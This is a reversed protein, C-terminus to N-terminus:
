FKELWGPKVTKSADYIGFYYMCVFSFNAVASASSVVNRWEPDKARLLPSWRERLQKEIAQSDEDVPVSAESINDSAKTKSAVSNRKKVKRVIQCILSVLSLHGVVVALSALPIFLIRWAADLPVSIMVVFLVLFARNQDDKEWNLKRWLDRAETNWNTYIALLTPVVKKNPRAFYELNGFTAIWFRFQASYAINYLLDAINFLMKRDAKTAKLNEITKSDTCLWSITNVSIRVVYAAFFMAAAFTQLWPATGTAAFTFLKIAELLVGVAFLVVFIISWSWRNGVGLTDEEESFDFDKFLMKASAKISMKKYCVGYVLWIITVLIDALCIFPSTRAPSLHQNAFHDAGSRQTAANIGLVVLCLVANLPSVHVPEKAPLTGETTNSESAARLTPEAGSAYVVLACLALFCYLYSRSCSM